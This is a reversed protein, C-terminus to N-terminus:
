GSINFDGIILINLICHSSIIKEVLQCYATYIHNHTNPAIYVCGLLLKCNNYNLFVLVFDIGTISETPIRICSYKTNIALLVGSGRVEHSSERDARFIYNVLGSEEDNYNINLWTETLFLLDCHLTSVSNCFYILKTSLGRLMRTFFM